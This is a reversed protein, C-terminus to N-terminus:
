RMYDRKPYMIAITEEDYLQELEPRIEQPPSEGFIVAQEALSIVLAERAEKRLIDPDVGEGTVTVDAELMRYQVNTSPTKVALRISYTLPKSPTQSSMEQEQSMM